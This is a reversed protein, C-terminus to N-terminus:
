PMGSGLQTEATTSAAREGVPRLEPQPTAQASASSMSAQRGGREEVFRKLNDLDRDLQQEPSRGFLSALVHGVRGGPPRYSMSVTARTGSPCPALEVRGAHEVASRYESHWALTRGRERETIVSNWEVPIGLPGKVKWHSRDGGLPRVEKVMSMFHPFNEVECWVDYVLEPSASIEISKSVEPADSGAVRQLRQRLQPSNKVALVAVGIAAAGGLVGAVGVPHARTYNRAERGGRSLLAQARERAGPPPLAVPPSQRARQTSSAAYLLLAGLGMGLLFPTAKGLRDDRNLANKLKM